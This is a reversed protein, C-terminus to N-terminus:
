PRRGMKQNLKSTKRQKQITHILQKYIKSILGKNTAESASIKAWEVSQEPTKTTAEKPIPRCWVARPIKVLSLGTCRCHFHLTKGM